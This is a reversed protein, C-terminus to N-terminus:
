NEAIWDSLVDRFHLRSVNQSNLLNVLEQVKEPNVCVDAIQDLIKQDEMMAIGYTKRIKGEQKVEGQLLDYRVDLTKEEM